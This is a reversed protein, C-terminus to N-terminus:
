ETMPIKKIPFAMLFKAGQGETSECWVRGMMEETFKKVISLGIGTSSEGGTPHASLKKYKIFLNPLENKKVGPGQDKVCFIMEGDKKKLELFIAKNPLSFKIANSILNSVAQRFYTEDLAVEFKEDLVKFNIAIGKKAAGVQFESVAKNIIDLIATGSFVGLVLEKGIEHVNLIRNIMDASNQASNRIMKLYKNTDEDIRPQIINLIGIIQNVPSKLDHAVIDILDNKEHNISVLKQNVLELQQNKRLIEQNGKEIKVAQDIIEGQQIELLESRRVAKMNARLIFFASLAVLFLLFAISIVLTNQRKIKSDKKFHDMKLAQNEHIKKETEYEIKLRAIQHNKSENFLSDRLQLKIKHYRLASKFDGKMEYMKVYHQLIQMERDKANIKKALRLANNLYLEAKDYNGLHAQVLGINGTSSTLIQYDELDEGITNSLKLQAIALDYEKQLTHIEGITNLMYGRVRQDGIEEAIDLSHYLYTLADELEGKKIHVRGLNSMAIGYLRENHLLKADDMAQEFYSLADELNDQEYYVLGICNLAETKKDTYDYEEIIKLAILYHELAIDYEGIVWHAIGMSKHSNSLGLKYGISDSLEVARKAYVMAIKPETSHYEYVLMNLADVKQSDSLTEKELVVKLSDIKTNQAFSQQSDALFFFVLIMSVQYLSM